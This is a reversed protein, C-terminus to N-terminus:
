LSKSVCYKGLTGAATTYLLSLVAAVLSLIGILSLGAVRVSEWQTLLTGPQSCICKTETLPSSNSTLM